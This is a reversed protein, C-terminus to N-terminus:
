VVVVDVHARRDAQIVLLDRLDVLGEVGGARLDDLHLHSTM